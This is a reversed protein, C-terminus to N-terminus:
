HFFSCKSLGGLCKLGRADFCTNEHGGSLAEWTKAFEPLSRQFVPLVM